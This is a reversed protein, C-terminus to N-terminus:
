SGAPHSARAVSVLYSSNRALPQSNSERQKTTRMWGTQAIWRPYGAADASEQAALFDLDPVKADVIIQRDGPLRVILDPKANGTHVQEIFDCHASMGAAFPHTADIQEHTM